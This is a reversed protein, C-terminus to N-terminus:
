SALNYAHPGTLDLQSQSVLTAAASFQLSEAPASSGQLGRFFAAMLGGGQAPALLGAFAQVSSGLFVLGLPGLSLSDVPSTTGGCACLFPLWYAARKSQHQCASCASPYRLRAVSARLASRCRTLPPRLGGAPVYFFAAM